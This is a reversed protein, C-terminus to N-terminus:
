ATSLVSAPRPRRPVQNEGSDVLSAGPTPANRAQTLWAVLRAMRSRGAIYHASGNTIVHLCATAPRHRRM